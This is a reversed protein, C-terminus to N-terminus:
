CPTSPRGPGIGQTVFTPLLPAPGDKELRLMDSPTLDPRTPLEPLMFRLDPRCAGKFHQHHQHHQQGDASREPNFEFQRTKPGHDQGGEKAAPM